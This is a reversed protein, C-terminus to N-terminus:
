NDSQDNFERERLVLEIDNKFRHLEENSLQLLAITKNKRLKWVGNERELKNVKRTYMELLKNRILREGIISIEKKLKYLDIQKDTIGRLFKEDDLNLLDIIYDIKSKAFKGILDNKMFFSDSLLSHINAGFTERFEDSRRVRCHGDDNELFIINDRPLDSIVLPTNSTFILQLKKTPFITQLAKLLLYIYMRQWEPHFYTEGEDILILLHEVDVVLEEASYFRSVLSFMAKEGSSMDHWDMDLYDYVQPFVELSEYYEKLILRNYNEINEGQIMIKFGQGREDIKVAGQSVLTDLCEIFNGLRAKWYDNSGEYGVFFHIISAVTGNKLDVLERTADWDHRFIEDDKHNTRYFVFFYCLCIRIKLQEYPEAQALEALAKDRFLKLERDAPVYELMNMKIKETVNKLKFYAERVHPTSEILGVINDWFFIHITVTHDFEKQIKEKMLLEQKSDYPLNTAIYYNHIHEIQSPMTSPRRKSKRIDNKLKNYLEKYKQGIDRDESEYEKYVCQVAEHTEYNYMDYLSESTQAERKWTGSTLYNSFVHFAINEFDYPNEPLLIESLYFFPSFTCNLFNPYSFPLVINVGSAILNLQKKIESLRYNESRNLLHNTSIDILRPNPPYAKKADFIHSYYIIKHMSNLPKDNNNQKKHTLNPANIIVDNVVISKSYVYCTQKEKWIVLFQEDEELNHVKENIFSSVKEIIYDLVSSKGTGNEGIIGTIHVVNHASYDASRSTSLQFFDEPIENQKMDINIISNEDLTCSYKNSFNFEQNHINHYKGIRIYILEM